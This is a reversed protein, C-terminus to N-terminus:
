DSKELGFRIRAMAGDKGCQREDVYFETNIIKYLLLPKPIESGGRVLGFRPM